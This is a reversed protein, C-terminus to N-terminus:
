NCLASIPTVLFDDQRAGKRVGIEIACGRYTFKPGRRRFQGRLIGAGGFFSSSAERMNPYWFREGTTSMIVVPLDKNQNGMKRSHAINKAQSVWELNSASNNQPNADIHNVVDCGEQRQLFVTAVLRHVYAWNKVGQGYLMVKLYGGTSIQPKMKRLEGGRRSWVSGDDGVAYRGEYGSIETRM